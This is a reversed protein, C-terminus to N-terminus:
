IGGSPNVDLHLVDGSGVGATALTRDLPLVDGDEDVLDYAEVDGFTRGNAVLVEALVAALYHGRDFEVAVPGNPTEVVVDVSM